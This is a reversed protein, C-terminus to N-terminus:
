VDIFWDIIYYGSGLIKKYNQLHNSIEEQSADAKIKCVRQKLLTGDKREVSVWLNLSKM